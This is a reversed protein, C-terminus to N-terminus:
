HFNFVWSKSFALTFPIFCGELTFPIFYGRRKELSILFIGRDFSIRIELYDSTIESEYALYDPDVWSYDETAIAAM